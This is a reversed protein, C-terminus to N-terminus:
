VEKYTLPSCLQLGEFDAGAPYRVRVEAILVYFRSLHIKPYNKKQGCVKVTRLKAAGQSVLNQLVEISLDSTQSNPALQVLAQCSM